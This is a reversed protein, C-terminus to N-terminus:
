RLTPPREPCIGRARPSTGERGVDVRLTVRVCPPVVKDPRTTGPIVTRRCPYPHEHRTLRRPPKKRVRSRGPPNRAPDTARTRPFPPHMLVSARRAEMGGRGAVGGRGACGGSSDGSPVTEGSAAGDGACSVGGGGVSPRVPEVGERGALGGRGSCAGVLPSRRGDPRAVGGLGAGDGALPSLTGEQDEVGGRGSRDGLPSPPTGDRATVAGLGSIDGPRPFGTGACLNSAGGAPPTVGGRGAVGGRGSCDGTPPSATGGRGFYRGEPAVQRGRGASGGTPPSGQDSGLGCSGGAAVTGPGRRVSGDTTPSDQVSGSEPSRGAVPAGRRGASRGVVVSAGAARVGRCLRGDGASSVMVGGRAPAAEGDGPGDVAPVGRDPPSDRVGDDGSVAPADRAPPPERRGTDAPEEASAADRGPASATERELSAGSVEPSTMARGTPPPVRAPRGKRSECSGFGDSPDDEAPVADGGAGPAVPVESGGRWSGVCGRKGPRRVVGADGGRRVIKGTWYRRM